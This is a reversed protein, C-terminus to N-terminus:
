GMSIYSVISFNWGVGKADKYGHDLQRTRDACRSVVKEWRHQVSSLLNKILIVDQKQSFYKLHTGTEDLKMMRGRNSSIEKQLGQHLSTSVLTLHFICLIKYLNPQWTLYKLEHPGPFLSSYSQFLKNSCKWPLYWPIEVSLVNLHTEKSELWSKDAITWMIDQYEWALFGDNVYQHGLSAM